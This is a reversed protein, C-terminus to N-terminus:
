RDFQAEFMTVDNAALIQDVQEIGCRVQCAIVDVDVAEDAINVFAIYPDEPAMPITGFAM